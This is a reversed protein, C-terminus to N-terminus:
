RRALRRRAGWAVAGMLMLGLTGPEPVNAQITFTTGEAFGILDLAFEPNGSPPIVANPISGLAFTAIGGNPTQTFTTFVDSALSLPLQASTITIQLSTIPAGTVNRFVCTMAPAIGAYIQFQGGFGPYGGPGWNICGPHNPFSLSYTNTFLDISGTGQRVIIVPDPVPTVSDAYLPAALLLLAISVLVARVHNM